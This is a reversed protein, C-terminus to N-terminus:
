RRTRATRSHSRTQRGYREAVTAFAAKPEWPVGPYTSGPRDDLVKVIGYSALDLDHRPDGDRHPLAYAAFTFVFTSDVGARDFIDLLEGICAAQGDEDRRYEGDLRGPVYGDWDIIEGARAGRGPAGEFTASGFETIAVPKGQAVLARVGDEFRDAVEDPRYLDVSILDFPAWDVGELPVVAAYTVRGGFRERVGAVARALFANLRAPVGALLERLRRPDGLLALREELTDGPLFGHNLLSLEGGTVLTVEAGATRLGEARTACDALLELMEDETLDCVFPSFWVELGLEAALVATAELRDPDGGMVRVANVHLEDRIIRLERAVVEPDFPERSSVGGHFFGTDYCIGRGRM